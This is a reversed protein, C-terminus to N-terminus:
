LRCVLESRSQLESTHEESRTSGNVSDVRPFDSTWGPLQALARALRDAADNAAVQAQLHLSSEAVVLSETRVPVDAPWARLLSVFIPLACTQVGTVILVRIGD